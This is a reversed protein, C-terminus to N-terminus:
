LEEEPEELAKMAEEDEDDEREIYLVNQVMVEAITLHNRKIAVTGNETLSWDTADEFRLPGGFGRALQTLVVKIM